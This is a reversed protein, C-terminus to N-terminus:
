QIDKVAAKLIPALNASSKTLQEVLQQQKAGEMPAVPRETKKAEDLLTPDKL